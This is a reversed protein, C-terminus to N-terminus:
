AVPEKPVKSGKGKKRLFPAIQHPGKRGSWNGSKEKIKGGTVVSFCKTARGRDEKERSTASDPDRDPRTGGKGKAPACALRAAKERAAIVLDPDAFNMGKKKCFTVSPKLCTSVIDENSPSSKPAAKLNGGGRKEPASRLLPPVGREYFDAPPDERKKKTFFLYGM